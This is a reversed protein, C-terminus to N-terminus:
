ISSLKIITVNWWVVKNQLCYMEFTFLFFSITLLLFLKYTVERVKSRTTENSTSTRNGDVESSDWATSHSSKENVGM